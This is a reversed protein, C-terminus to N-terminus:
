VLLHLYFKCYHQSEHTFVGHNEELDCFGCNNVRQFDGSCPVYGPVCTTVVTVFWCQEWSTITLCLRKMFQQWNRVCASASNGPNGWTLCSFPKRLYSSKGLRRPINPTNGKLRSWRIWGSSINPCLMNVTHTSTHKSPYTTHVTHVSLSPMHVYIGLSVRACGCGCVHVCGCGCVHVCMYTHIHVCGYVM